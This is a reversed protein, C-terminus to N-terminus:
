VASGSGPAVVEERRSTSTEGHVLDVVREDAVDRSRELFELAAQAWADAAPAADESGHGRSAHEKEPERM